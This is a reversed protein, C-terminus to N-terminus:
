FLSWGLGIWLYLGIAIEALSAIVPLWFGLRAKYFSNKMKKVNQLLENDSKTNKVATAIERALNSHIHPSFTIDGSVYIKHLYIVRYYAHALMAGISNDIAIMIWFLVAAFFFVVAKSQSVGFSLVGLNVTAFFTSVQIRLNQCTQILDFSKQLEIEHFKGMVVEKKM